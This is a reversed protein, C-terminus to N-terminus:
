AENAEKVLAIGDIDENIDSLLIFDTANLENLKRSLEVAPNGMFLHKELNIAIWM